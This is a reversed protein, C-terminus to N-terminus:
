NKDEKRRKIIAVILMSIIMLFGVPLGILPLQAFVVPFSNIGLASLGLTLLMSVISVGIVGVSMYALTTEIPARKQNKAM